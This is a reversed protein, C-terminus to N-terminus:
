YIISYFLVIKNFIFFSIKGISFLMSFFIGPLKNSARKDYLFITSLISSYIYMSLFGNIKLYIISKIYFSKIISYSNGFSYNNSSSAYQVIKLSYSLLNSLDIMYLSEISSTKKNFHFYNPRNFHSM